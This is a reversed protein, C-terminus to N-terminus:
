ERLRFRLNIQNPKIPVRISAGNGLPIGLALGDKFAIHVSIEKGTRYYWACDVMENDGVKITRPGLHKKM